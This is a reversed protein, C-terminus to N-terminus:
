LAVVNEHRETVVEPEDVEVLFTTGDELAFQAVEKDM